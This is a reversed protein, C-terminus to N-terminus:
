PTGRKGAPAETVKPKAPTKEPSTAPPTPPVVDDANPVYKATLSAEVTGDEKAGQQLPLINEFAGTAELKEMFEDVDPGRKARVIMSIETGKENVTPRVSALMVDPPLTAEIQNFFETWSFTRSDILMNAESAAAVVVSLEKKDIGSRIQRARRAFDDAATRDDRIRGALTTNQRSLQVLTIVNLATLVLLILAVLGLGLHVVRENYFPRTSLNTRLM